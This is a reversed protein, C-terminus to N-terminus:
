PSAEGLHENAAVVDFPIPWSVKTALASALVIRTAADIQLPFSKILGLTNRDAWADAERKTPMFGSEVADPLARAWDALQPTADAVGVWVAIAASLASPPSAMFVELLQAAEDGSCGLAGELAIRKDGDAASVCAALLLWVGLPSCVFEDPKQDLVAPYV